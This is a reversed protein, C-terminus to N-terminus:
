GAMKDLFEKVKGMFSNSEPQSESDSCADFEELLEKQRKSLNVPTEVRVEVVLDGFVGPRNLHPLGKGRLILRKSTQTGAPLTLRARGSLTPVELRGGLAAQTFTIPVHCLLDAEYREFMPHPAVEIVIFLDGNPAGRLGAGGEGSLRIRNGTDVGAPIKVTLTKESRVRGQGQCGGCPNRIIRGQGRCTPCTRAVSFFGQQTRVQGAGGCMTCNEPGSGAKAGSGGCTACVIITPIRIREESGNMVTELTVTLDYRFDEGRQAGGASRQGRGGGGGFIDGFFEEFIDGFGGGFGSPDGSYGGGAGGQGLGAHGYQDYIARKKPDKLVEYAANVEKFKAEAGKDNPNRDPHLEMALKRYAKKIDAEQADRAIGLIEYLDKPM